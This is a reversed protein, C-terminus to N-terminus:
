ARREQQNASELAALRTELETAEYVRVIVGAISAMATGQKPDLAGSEVGDLATFLKALVPRLSAPTLKDLRHSTRKHQGGTAYAARRKDQLEPSHAFCYGDARAPLTCPNGDRRLAACHAM